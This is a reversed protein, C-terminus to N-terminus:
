CRRGTTVRPWHGQKRKRKSCFCDSSVGGGALGGAGAGCGGARRNCLHEAQVGVWYWGQM